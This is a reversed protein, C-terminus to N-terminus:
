SKPSFSYMVKDNSIFFNEADMEKGTQKSIIKCTKVSIGNNIYEVTSNCVIADGNDCLIIFFKEM